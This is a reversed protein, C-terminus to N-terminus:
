LNEAQKMREKSGSITAIVKRLWEDGEANAQAAQEAYAKAEAIIEDATKDQVSQPLDAILRLNEDFVTKWKEKEAMAAGCETELQKLKAELSKIEQKLAPIEKEKLAVLEKIKAKKNSLEQQAQELKKQEDLLTKNTTNVKESEAVCSQLQEQTQQIKQLMQAMDDTPQYTELLTNLCDSMTAVTGGYAGYLSRPATKSPVQILLKALAFATKAAEASKGQEVFTELQKINHQILQINM